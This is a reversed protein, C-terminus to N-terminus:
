IKKTYLFQVRQRSRVRVGDQVVHALHDLGVQVQNSVERNHEVAGPESLDDVVQSSLQVSYTCTLLSYFLLM